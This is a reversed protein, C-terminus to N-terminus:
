GGDSLAQEVLTYAHELAAGLRDPQTGGGTAFDPGGGASGGAQGAIGKLLNGAHLRGVLDRTVGAVFRLRGNQATGLVVFGSRLDQRVADVVRKLEEEPAQELSQAVVKIGRVDRAHASLHGASASAQLKQRRDLERRLADMEAVLSEIRVTVEAANRAGLREAIGDLLRLRENLYELAMQGAYAVIRRKGSGIGSESALVVAGLEGSHHTHTGGCLERSYDGISVVRVDEGYKEGFMMVAELKRARDMSMIEWHVPLDDMSRENIITSVDQLEARSLPRPHNFDFRLQDPGVYSGQQSTAPGLVDKLARHLLHTATHHRRARDRRMVDVEGRALEGIQIAGEELRGYHVIRGGGDIRTDEVVFLGGPTRIWGSDGIQGGGEPYFASAELVLRATQGAQLEGAPAGDVRAALVRAESSTDTWALYLTQALDGFESDVGPQAHSFRAVARAREQEASLAADFESRDFSLGQERLAEETLEVPFGYTQYLDFVREGSISTQGSARAQDILREIQAQGAKLTRSFLEEENAVVQQIRVQDTGLEPYHQRMREIVASTLETM